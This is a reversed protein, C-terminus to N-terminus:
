RPLRYRRGRIVRPRKSLSIRMQSAGYGVCFSIPLSFSRSSAAAAVAASVAAVSAATAAAAAGAAGAAAVALAAAVAAAAAAASTAAVAVEAAIKTGSYWVQPLSTLTAAAFTKSPREWGRACSGPWCRVVM